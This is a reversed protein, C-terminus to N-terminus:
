RLQANARLVSGFCNGCFDCGNFNWFEGCKPCKTDIVIQGEDGEDIKFETGDEVVKKLYDIAQTLNENEEILKLMELYAEKNTIFEGEKNMEMIHCWEADKDGKLEEIYKILDEKECMLLQSNSFNEM